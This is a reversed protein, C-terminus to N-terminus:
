GLVEGTRKRAEVFVEMNEEEEMRQAKLRRRSRQRAQM